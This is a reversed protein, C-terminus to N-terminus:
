KVVVMQRALRVDGCELIYFYTGSPLGRADLTATNEGEPMHGTVITRVTSGTQDVIALRVTSAVPLTFRVESVGHSPNPYSQSLIYGM